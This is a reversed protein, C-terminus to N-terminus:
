QYFKLGSVLELLLFLLCGARKLRVFVCIQLIDALRDHIGYTSGFNSDAVDEKGGDGHSLHDSGGVWRMM